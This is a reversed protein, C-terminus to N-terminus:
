FFLIFYTGTRNPTAMANTSTNTSPARRAFCSCGSFIELHTKGIAKRTYPNCDM